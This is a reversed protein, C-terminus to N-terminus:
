LINIYDNYDYYYYAVISSFIKPKTTNTTKIKLKNKDSFYYIILDYDPLFEIDRNEKWEGSTKGWFIRSFYSVYPLLTYVIQIPITITM